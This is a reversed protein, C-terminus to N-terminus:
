IFLQNEFRCGKRRITIKKRCQTNSFVITDNKENCLIYLMRFKKCYRLNVARSTLMRRKDAGNNIAVASLAIPRYTPPVANLFKGRTNINKRGATRARATPSRQM